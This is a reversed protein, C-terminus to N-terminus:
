SEARSWTHALDEGVALHNLIFDASRFAELLLDAELARAADRCQRSAEVRVLAVAAEIGRVITAVGRGQYATWTAFSKAAIYRNLPPHFRNWQPVVYSLFARDLGEEDPEPKFEDPVATMAEHFLELSPGLTQAAPADVAASPLQAIADALSSAGPRWTGILAADRRLTALTSEPSRTVDGCRAVM